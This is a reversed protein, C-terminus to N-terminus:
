TIFIATGYFTKNQTPLFYTSPSFRLLIIKLHIDFFHLLPDWFTTQLVFQRLLSKKPAV